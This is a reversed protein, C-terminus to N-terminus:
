KKSENAKRKRVGGSANLNEKTTIAVLKDSSSTLDNRHGHSHAHGGKALRVFKEVALFSIIGALVWLGVIMDHMHDHAHNHNHDHGAEDHNHDHGAEEHNHPSVAHPILHLFADGLLGGSAFSLLVKLLSSHKTAENLPIFFLLFFPAASILATSIFAYTWLEWSSQFPASFKLLFDWHLADSHHHTDVEGHAM